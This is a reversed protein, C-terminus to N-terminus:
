ERTTAIRRLVAALEADRGAAIDEIGPHLTEYARRLIAADATLDAAPILRVTAPAPLTGAAAVPAAVVALLAATAVLVSFKRRTGTQM